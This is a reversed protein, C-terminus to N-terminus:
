KAPAAAVKTVTVDLLEVEFILTENPGILGNGVGKEAYGLASPIYLKYKSGVSMLQLGETWGPIVGKLPFEIPQGRDVSSDFVKGSVLSGTYHVKVTSELNPKKGTGEKIIEYQLGSATVKVKPNTKNKALFDAGIKLAEKGKEAQEKMAKAQVAEQLSAFVKQLDDKKLLAKTSDLFLADNIASKVIDLNVISDLKQAKFSQGISMGIAYSISDNKSKLSKVETSKNCSILSFIAITALIIRLKM